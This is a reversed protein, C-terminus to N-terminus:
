SKTKKKFRKHLGPRRHNWEYRTPRDCCTRLPEVVNCLQRDSRCRCQAQIDATM